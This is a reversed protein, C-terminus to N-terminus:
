KATKHLRRLEQSKELLIQEQKAFNKSKETLDKLKSGKGSQSIRFIQSRHKDIAQLSMSHAQIISEINPKGLWIIKKYNNVKIEKIWSQPMLGEAQYNPKM